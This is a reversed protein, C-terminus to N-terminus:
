RNRRNESNYTIKATAEPLSANLGTIFDEMTTAKIDMMTGPKDATGMLVMKFTRAAANKGHSNNLLYEMTDQISLRDPLKTIKTLFISLCPLPVPLPMIELADLGDKSMGHRAFSDKIARTIDELLPGRLPSDRDIM